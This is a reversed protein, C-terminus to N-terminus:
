PNQLTDRWYVSSLKSKFMTCYNRVSTKSFQIAVEDPDRGQRAMKERVADALIREVDARCYVRGIGRKLREIVAEVEGDTLLPPCGPVAWDSDVVPLGKEDRQLLRYVSKVSNPVYGRWLMAEICRRRLPSGKPYGRAIAVAEPKRYVRGERPAPLVFDKVAQPVDKDTPKPDPKRLKKTAPELKPALKPAAKPALKPAPIKIPEKRVAKKGKAMPRKQNHKKITQSSAKADSAEKKKTQKKPITVEVMDDISPKGLLPTEGHKRLGNPPIERPRGRRHWNENVIPHGAEDAQLLRYITKISAPAFKTECM